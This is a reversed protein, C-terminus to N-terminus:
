RALKIFFSCAPSFGISMGGSNHAAKAAYFPLGITAGTTLIHGSNAIAVGLREALGRSQEVTEGSAAGSVCISYKM